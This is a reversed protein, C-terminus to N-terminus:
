SWPNGGSGAAPAGGSSGASTKSGAPLWRAVTNYQRGDQSTRIGLKVVIEKGQIHYLEGEDPIEIDGNENIPWGVADAFGALQWENKGGVYLPVNNYRIERGKLNQPKGDATFTFDDQIKVSVVAQPAGKNPSNDSKVTTEEIEHITARVQTGAPAPAFSGGLSEKNVTVTRAM